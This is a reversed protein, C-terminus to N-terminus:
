GYIIHDVGTAITMDSLHGLMVIIYARLGNALVPVAISALCFLLRKAATQYSLYAFLCGLTFSALLYRIGSCAEAVLWNGSPLFIYLGDNYVPVGSMRVM